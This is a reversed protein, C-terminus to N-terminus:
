RWFLGAAHVKDILISALGEASERMLCLFESAARADDQENVRLRERVGAVAALPKSALKACGAGGAAATFQLLSGWLGAFPRLALYARSALAFCKSLRNTSLLAQAV